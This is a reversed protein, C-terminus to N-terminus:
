GMGAGLIEDARDWGRWWADALTQTTPSQGELFTLYPNSVREDNVQRALFGFSEAEQVPSINMDALAKDTGRVRAFPDAESTSGRRAHVATIRGSGLAKVRPGPRPM